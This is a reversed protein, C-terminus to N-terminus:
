MDMAIFRIIFMGGSCAVKRPQAITKIHKNVSAWSRVKTTYNEIVLGAPRTQHGNPGFTQWNVALGGFQEYGALFAALNDTKHPVLFEDIDVMGMWHSSSGHNSQCDNYADLQVCNGPLDIVTLM